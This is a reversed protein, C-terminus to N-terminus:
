RGGGKKKRVSQTEGFDRGTILALKFLGRKKPKSGSREGAIGTKRRIHRADIVTRTYHIHLTTRNVGKAATTKGPPRVECRGRITGPRGGNKGTTNKTHNKKKTPPTPQRDARQPGKM